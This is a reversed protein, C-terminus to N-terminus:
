QARLKVNLVCSLAASAYAVLWTNPWITSSTQGCNRNGKKQYALTTEGDGRPLGFLCDGGRQSHPSVDSALLFPLKMLSVTLPKTNNLRAWVFTYPWCFAGKEGISFFSTTAFFSILAYVMRGNHSYAVRIYALEFLLKYVSWMIFHHNKYTYWLPAAFYSILM